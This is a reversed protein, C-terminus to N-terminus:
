EVNSVLVGASAGPSRLNFLSVITCTETMQRSRPDSRDAESLLLVSVGYGQGFVWSPFKRKLGAATEETLPAAGTMGARVSSLDYKSTDNKVLLVVMPPVVYLVSVRYRQIAELFGDFTFKRLVAVPTGLFVSLHLNVINGYIHFFPLTGMIVDGKRTASDYPTFPLEKQWHRAAQLVNSIANYHAIQVAKPLGTTGSSFMLLATRTKAEAKSIKYPPPLDMTQLEAIVDDLTRYNKALDAAKPSTSADAPRILIISTTQLKSKDVAEVAELLGDPHVLLVKAPFHGSM